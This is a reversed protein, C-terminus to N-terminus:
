HIRPRKMEGFMGRRGGLIEGPKERGLKRDWEEYDAKIDFYRLTMVMIIKMELLALEQGICTRPGKEFPRWADKVIEQFNHPTPM